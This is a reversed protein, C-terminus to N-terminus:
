RVTKCVGPRSMLSHTLTFLLWVVLLFIRGWPCFGDPVVTSALMFAWFKCHLLCCLLQMVSLHVQVRSQVGSKMCNRCSTTSQLATFHTLSHNCYSNTCTWLRCARVHGAETINSNNRVTNFITSCVLTLYSIRLISGSQDSHPVCM